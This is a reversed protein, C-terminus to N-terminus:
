NETPAREAADGVVVDVATKVPDLRLGWQRDGYREGNTRLRVVNRPPDCFM